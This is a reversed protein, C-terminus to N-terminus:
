IGRADIQPLENVPLLGYIIEELLYAGISMVHGLFRAIMDPCKNISQSSLSEDPELTGFRARKGLPL